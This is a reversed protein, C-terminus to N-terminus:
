VQIHYPYTTASRSVLEMGDRATDPCVGREKLPIVNNVDITIEEVVKNIRQKAGKEQSSGGGCETPVIVVCTKVLDARVTIRKVNFINTKSGADCDKRTVYAGLKITTGDSRQFVSIDYLKTIKEGDTVNSKTKFFNKIKEMNSIPVDLISSVQKYWADFWERVISLIINILVESILLPLGLIFKIISAGM